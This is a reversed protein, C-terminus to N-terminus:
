AARAEPALGLAELYRDRVREWALERAIASARGAQAEALGPRALLREIQRALDEPDGPRAYAVADPPFYAEMAPLRSCVAPVGLWAYELLKTPLLLQGYGDALIPVLGLRARGVEALTESWPLVGTFVVRDALDLREVLRVLAPLQEGGGVVRLTLDPWTRLLAMARIAVDVGYREVLTSHTILTPATARGPAPRAGNWPTTNLVISTREPSLGRGLLLDLCPRSVVIVHDAWRTAAAEMLRAVAVLARGLWGPFRAAVMEPTLEYMTFVVRAGRLRPIAAAFVLLDPLNDVQVAAYRRRLGLAGAVAFAALFFAAYELPYRIASGRRHRIPLRHVRVGAWGVAEPDERGGAACVVDVEFGRGALEVVDRRVISDAPFPHQTIRLVRGVEAREARM